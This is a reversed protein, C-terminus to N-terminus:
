EEPPVVVVEVNTSREVHRACSYVTGQRFASLPSDIRNEGIVLASAGAECLYEEISELVPGIRVVACAELGQERARAQAVSMLTRGLWRQEEVVAQALM